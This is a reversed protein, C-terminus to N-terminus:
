EGRRNFLVQKIDKIDGRMEEINQLGKAQTEIVGIYRQERENNTSLVWRILYFTALGLAVLLVAIFGVQGAQEFLVKEVRLGGRV